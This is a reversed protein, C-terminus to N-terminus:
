RRSDSAPVLTGGMRWGLGKAPRSSCVTFVVRVVRIEGTVSPLDLRLDVEAGVEFPM